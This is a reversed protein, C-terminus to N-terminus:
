FHSSVFDFFYGAAIAMLFWGGVYYLVIKLPLFRLTAMITPLCIGSSALLFVMAQGPTLGLDILARAIPVEEGSCVYIPVSVFAILFYSFSFKSLMTIKDSPLLAVLLSALFLGLLVYKGIALGECTFERLFVRWDRKEHSAVEPIAIEREEIEREEKKFLYISLFSLLNAFILTILVRFLAFKTKLMGLTLLFTVPSIVPAIMLFSLTPAYTRSLNNIFIALPIVSCSCVPLISALLSSFLPALKSSRLVKVLFGPRLYIKLFTTFLLALFFYPLVEKTYDLFIQWFKTIFVM